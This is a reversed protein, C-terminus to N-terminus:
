SVLEMVIKQFGMSNSAKFLVVDNSNVIQELYNKAENNNEFHVVKDKQMGSIQAQSSINESLNGVCILVDINNDFVAQGVKKHGVVEYTGLEFMDGLFAIRKGNCKIKGFTELSSVMSTPNANYADNIITYGSKATLIEQRGGEPKSQRFNELIKTLSIDAELGVAIAACANIINHKGSINLKCLSREQESDRFDKTCIVFSPRGFEDLEADEFWVQSGEIENHYATGGFYILKINREKLKAYNIVFDRYPSDTPLFM